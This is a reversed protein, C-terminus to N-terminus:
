RPRGSLGVGPEFVVVQIRCVEALISGMREMGPQETAYHGCALITLGSESAELAVHQPVEGTIYADAGLALAARWEGSAAGGVVAVCRVPRDHGVWMESRSGLRDDVFAQFDEVGQLDGIRGCPHAVGDALQVWDFAPEEYPHVARLASEVARRREGSVVM